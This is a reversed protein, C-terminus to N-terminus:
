GQAAASTAPTTPTSTATDSPTGTAAGSGQSAQASAADSLVYIYGSLTWTTSGSGSTAGSGDAPTAGDATTEERTSKIDDVLFLRDGDQMGATFALAQEFSGTVGISIAITSFNSATIQADTAPTAAAPTSPTASPTPSPTGAASAEASPETTSGAAPAAAEPPTYAAAWSTTIGNVTVGAAGAVRDVEKYFSATDASSPISTALADAERQMAPLKASRAALRALETRYGDNTADISRQQERNASAAALQPQVGLFFGGALLVVGIALAIVLNLRNRTM